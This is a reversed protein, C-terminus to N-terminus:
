QQWGPSGQQERTYTAISADSHGGGREARDEAMQEWDRDEEQRVPPPDPELKGSTWLGFWYRKRAALSTNERWCPLPESVIARVARKLAETEDASMPTRRGSRKVRVFEVLGDLRDLLEDSVLKDEWPADDTFPDWGSM